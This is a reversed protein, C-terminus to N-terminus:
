PREFNPLAYAYPILRNPSRSVALEAMEISRKTTTCMAFVVSKDIGAKDMIDIIVQAPFETRKADGHKLHVHSDIIPKGRPRGGSKDAPQGPVAPHHATLLTGAAGVTGFFTRRSMESAM